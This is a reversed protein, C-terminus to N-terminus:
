KAFPNAFLVLLAVVLAYIAMTEIMALGVFLTRSVTGASDPQRAIADMAAAVARGEGVAPGIAGFSVAMAASFISILQVAHEMTNSVKRQPQHSIRATRRCSSRRHLGNCARHLHLGGTLVDLAMFPIPVLLGALSLVIAGIFVGSMMNGFLRVILSFSRTIQEVINLPIMIWTPEAFTRLYGFLGRTRIGYFITACFVIAAFAADTELHATPPEVGPILSSWNAVLIFVFITGILARYPGPEVQMTGRIQDDTVGVFLELVTQAKSPMLSMRRTVAAAFTVLLAMIVWSIVVPESIAVPGLHFLAKTELPSHIM